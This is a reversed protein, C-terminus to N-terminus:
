VLPPGRSSPTLPEHHPVTAKEELLITNWSLVQQPPHVVGVMPSVNNLLDSFVMAASAHQDHVSPKDGLDIHVSKSGELTCIVVTMGHADHAIRSHAQMPILLQIFLLGVLGRALHVSIRHQKLQQLMAAM